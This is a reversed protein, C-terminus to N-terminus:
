EKIQEEIYEILENYYKKKRELELKEDYERSYVDLCCGMLKRYERMQTLQIEVENYLDKNTGRM